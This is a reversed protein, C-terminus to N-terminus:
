VHNNLQTTKARFGIAAFDSPVKNDFPNHIEEISFENKDIDSFVVRYIWAEVGKEKLTNFENISFFFDANKNTTTKVEICRKEGNFESEIDYGKAANMKSYNTIARSAELLSCKYKDMLRQIEYEIAIGEGQQGIISQKEIKELLREPTIQIHRKIKKSPKDYSIELSNTTNLIDDNVISGSGVISQYVHEDIKRVGNRWYNAHAVNEFYTKDNKKALVTNKLYQFNGIEAYLDGKPSKDDDYVQEITAIGFYYPLDSARKEKYKKDKLGGKYYIVHTGPTLLKKYQRPFHYKVGTVDDWQSEDNETIVTYM